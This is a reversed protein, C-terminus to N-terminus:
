LQSIWAKLAQQQDNMDTQMEILMQKLDSETDVDTLTALEVPESDLQDLMNHWWPKEPKLMVGHHTQGFKIRYRQKRGALLYYGGDTAPGIAFDHTKLARCQM